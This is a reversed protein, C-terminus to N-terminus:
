NNKRGFIHIIYSLLIFGFLMYDMYYLKHLFELVVSKINIVQSFIGIYQNAIFPVSYIFAKLPFVYDIYDILLPVFTKIEEKNAYAFDFFYTDVNFFILTKILIPPLIFSILFKEWSFSAIDYQNVKIGLCFILSIAIIFNEFVDYPLEQNYLITWINNIQLNDNIYLYLQPSIEKMPIPVLLIILITILVNLYFFFFFTLLQRVKEINNQLNKMLNTILSEFM